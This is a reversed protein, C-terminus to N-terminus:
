KIGFGIYIYIYIYIYIHHAFADNTIVNNFSGASM